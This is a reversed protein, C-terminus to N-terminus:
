TAPTSRPAEMLCCATWASVPTCPRDTWTACHSKDQSPHSFVMKCEDVSFVVDLAEQENTPRENCEGDWIRTLSFGHAKAVRILKRIVRREIELRKAVTKDTM